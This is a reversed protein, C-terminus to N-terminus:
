QTPFNRWMKIYYFQFSLFFVQGPINAKKLIFEVSKEIKNSMKTLTSFSLNKKGGQYEFTEKEERKLKSKRREKRKKKGIDLELDLGRRFHLASSVGCPRGEKGSRVRKGARRTRRKREAQTPALQLRSSSDQEPFNGTCATEPTARISASCAPIRL